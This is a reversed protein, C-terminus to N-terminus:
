CPRNTTKGCLKRRLMSTRTVNFTVHLNSLDLETSNIFQWISPPYPSVYTVYLNKIFNLETNFDGGITANIQMDSRCNAYTWYVQASEVTCFTTNLFLEIPERQQPPVDPPITEELTSWLRAINATFDLDMSATGFTKAYSLEFQGTEISYVLANLLRYLGSNEYGSMVLVFYRIFDGHIYANFSITAGDTRKDMTTNLWICELIGQTFEYLSGSGKGPITSNLQLLLNEVITENVEYGFYTGYVVELEDSLFLDTINGHFNVNLTAIPMGSILPVTITGTLENNAYDAIVTFDSLNLPFQSALSEPFNVSATIGIDAMGGLYTGNLQFSTGYYPFVDAIHEQVMFAINASMETSGDTGKFSVDGSADMGSIYPYPLHTYNLTGGMVVRGDPYVTFKAEIDAFPPDFEYYHYERSLPIDSISGLWKSYFYDIKYLYMYSVATANLNSSYITPGHLKLYVYQTGMNLPSVDFDSVYINNSGAVLGSIGVQYLGEEIVSVEVGVKLYDFKGDGDADMGEDSIAGTFYAPPLDFEYYHYERSLPVGSLSGLLNWEEDYLAIYSVSSPNRGSSYIQEGNLALYVFQVGVNLYSYSYGYVSIYNGSLDRLNSIYVEYYGALTVNIEVSVELYDFDVDYDIDVGRDIINGTLYASGDAFAELKVGAFVPSIPLALLLLMMISVLKKIRLM